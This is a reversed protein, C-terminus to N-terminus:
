ARGTTTSTSTPGPRGARAGRAAPRDCLGHMAELLGDPGDTEWRVKRVVDRPLRLLDRRRDRGDARGLRAPEAPGGLDRRQDAPAAPQRRRRHRGDPRRLRRGAAPRPVPRPRDPRAGGRAPPGRRRRGGRRRLPVPREPRRPRGDVFADLAEPSMKDPHVFGFSAVVLADPPLGFRDRIARGSRRRDDAEPPHRAPDRRGQRRARAVYPASRTPCWPSHVVMGEAADLVGRNLYWGRRVCDRGITRGTWPWTASPRRRDRRPRGPVLAAARRPHLRPGRGQAAATTSTSAPSASTTCRSSAGTGCCCRTCTATIGRTAWRTSSRTTTRRRPSGTSCATTAADHVRAVGAGARPRLRRRPLPRDPLDEAAGRAPPGLLRLGGVQAPPLPSFFAIRPKRSHGRDFRLRRPRPRARGETIADLATVGTASGALLRPGSWRAPGCLTAALM